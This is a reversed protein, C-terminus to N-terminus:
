PRPWQGIKLALGAAILSLLALTAWRIATRTAEARIMRWAELLGRLEGIDRGAREDQLGIRRLAEDAGKRAAREMMAELAEDSIGM